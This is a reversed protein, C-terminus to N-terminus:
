TSAPPLFRSVSRSWDPYYDSEADKTLKQLNGGDIDMVFIDFILRDKAKVVKNASAFAIRQGDPSWSPSADYADNNNTLNRLNGGETDMVYIENNGGRSSDFAIHEGNPSWSPSWDHALHRTLRQPNGGNADMVYIEYNGDRRSNFAIREGSPSWSPGSDTEPNNTLNQPSSGDANMVYSKM